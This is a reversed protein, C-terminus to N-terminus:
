KKAGARRADVAQPAADVQQAREAAAGPRRGRLRRGRRSRAPRRQRAARRGAGVAIRANMAATEDKFESCGSRAGRRAPRGEGRPRGGGADQQLRRRRGLASWARVDVSAYFEDEGACARSARCTPSAHADHARAARRLLALLPRPRVRRGRAAARRADGLHPAGPRRLALRSPLRRASGTPRSRIAPRTSSACAPAPSSRSRSAPPSRRARPTSSARSSTALARASRARLLLQRHRRRRARDDPVRQLRRRRRRDVAHVRRARRAARPADARRADRRGPQRPRRLHPDRAARARRRPRARDLDLGLDLGSSMNTGGDAEIAAVTRSGRRARRTTSPPSRSRRRAADDSYTVLAFRDQPGLQALLERVAARAHEIKEGSM